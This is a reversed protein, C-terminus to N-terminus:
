PKIKEIMDYAVQFGRTIVKTDQLGDYYGDLHLVHYVTDLNSLMKKDIKSVHETYFEISKRRKKPMDVGKLRLYTDLALLVSNYATGCATRVYKRDSYVYGEIGAKKLTEKANDMYRMAEDYSKQKVVQQEENSM